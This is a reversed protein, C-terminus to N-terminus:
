WTRLYAMDLGWCNQVIQLLIVWFCRNLIEHSLKWFSGWFIGFPDLFLEFHGRASFSFYHSFKNKLTTVTLTISLADTFYSMLFYQVTRLFYLIMRLSFFQNMFVGFHGGPSFYIIHIFNKRTTVMLTTSCVDIYIKMLVYWVTRLFYLFMRVSFCNTWFYRLIVGLLSTFLTFLIEEHLSWWLLAVSM